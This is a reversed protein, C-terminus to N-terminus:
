LPSLFVQNVKHKVTNIRSNWWTLISEQRFQLDDKNNLLKKCKEAAEVWSHAFIWPPSNEYKFTYDIEEQTGVVVPIAGCISAEYLRMNDITTWGRTGPVFISDTYLTVLQKRSLQQNQGPYFIYKFHRDISSFESLMEQRDSKEQGVFSWNFGRSKIRKIESPNVNFDNIYALPIHQTNETYTYNKHNHQRLLLECYSGLSNHIQLDEYNFEDSLQIIIRPKLQKVVELVQQFNPMFGWHYNSPERCCYVFVDCRKTHNKYNEYTIFSIDKEVSEPLIENTIFDYEWLDERKNGFFFAISIM